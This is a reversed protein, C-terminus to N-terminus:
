RHRIVALTDAATRTSTSTYKYGAGSSKDLYFDCHAPAKGTLQMPFLMLLMRRTM